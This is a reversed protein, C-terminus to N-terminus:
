HIISGFVAVIFRILGRAAYRLADGLGLFARNIWSPEASAAARVPAADAPEAAASPPAAEEPPSVGPQPAAAVPPPSATTGAPASWAPGAVREMGSTAIDIGFFVCVLLLAAFLALKIGYQKM